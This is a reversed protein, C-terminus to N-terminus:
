SYNATYDDALSYSVDYGIDQLFGLTVRSLPMAVSSESWGTMLEDNLGYYTVGSIDRTEASISGQLGEEPHVNQTGNGGDDEL